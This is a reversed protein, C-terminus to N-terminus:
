TFLYHGISSKSIKKVKFFRRFKSRPLLYGVVRGKDGSRGRRNLKHGIKKFLWKLKNVRIMWMQELDPLYYILYDAKTARLGSPKDNCRMEIFLNGTYGKFREYRDTKVEITFVNVGNDFKLDYGKPDKYAPEKSTNWDLLNFGYSSFIGMVIREGLKGDMLDTNFKDM